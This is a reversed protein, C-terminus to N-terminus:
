PTPAIPPKALRSEVTRLCSNIQSTLRSDPNSELMKKLADVSKPGGSERLLLFAFFDLQSERNPQQLAELLADEAVSGQSRLAQYAMVLDERVFLRGVLKRALQEDAVRSEGIALFVQHRAPGEADDLLKILAATQEKGAWAGVARVASTSLAFNKDATVPLIGNVVEARRADVPAANALKLLAQHRVFFEASPNIADALAQTLEDDPLVPKAPAQPRPPLPVQGFPRAGPGVEPGAAPPTESPSRTVPTPATPKISPVAPPASPTANLPATM